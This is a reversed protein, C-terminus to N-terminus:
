WAGAGWPPPTNMWCVLAARTQAGAIGDVGIRGRTGGYRANAERQVQIILRATDSGFVGDVPTPRLGTFNAVFQLEAVDNGRMRNPQSRLVRTQPPRFHAFRDDSGGCHVMPPMEPVPGPPPGPLPPISGSFVPRPLRVYTPDGPCATSGVDRHGRSRQQGYRQEIIRFMADGARLCIDTPTDGVGGIFAIAHSRSNYNLTHGGAIGLGRGEFITGSQGVLYSYAIDSWGRGDMHFNQVGRVIADEPSTGTVLYHDFVGESTNALGSRSKPPRAGWEARTRYEFWEGTAPDVLVSM